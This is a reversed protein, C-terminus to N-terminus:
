KLHYGYSIVRAPWCSTQSIQNKGTVWYGDRHAGNSCLAHARVAVGAGASSACYVMAINTGASPHCQSLEPAIGADIKPSVVSLLLALLYQLM